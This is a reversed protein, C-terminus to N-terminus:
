DVKDHRPLDGAEVPGTAGPARESRGLKGRRVYYSMPRKLEPDLCMRTPDREKFCLGNTVITACEPPTYGKGDDHSTIHELQYRTVEEDFDPAGRYCEVMYDTSAGLRHLFAALTFRGFHSLNEGREMVAKMELICPPLFAPNFVGPATDGGAPTRRALEELFEGEEQEFLKTVAPQLTIRPLSLLYLRIAEQLLRAARRRLVLVNGEGDLRQRILRYPSERIQAAMHIYSPVSIRVGGDATEELSIGLSGAVFALEGAPFRADSTDTSNVLTGWASKAISLCWRRFLAPPISPVSLLLQSYQFALFATTPDSDDTESVSRPVAPSGLAHELSERARRRVEEYVPSVVLDRISPSGAPGLLDEAGPLYPHRAYHILTPTGRIAM